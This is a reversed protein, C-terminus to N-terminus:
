CLLYSIGFSKRGEVLFLRFGFRSRLLIKRDARAKKHVNSSQELEESTKAQKNTLSVKNHWRSLNVLLRFRERVETNCYFSLPTLWRYAAGDTLVLTRQQGGPARLSSAAGHRQLSYILIIIVPSWCLSLYCIEFFYTWFHLMNLYFDPVSISLM